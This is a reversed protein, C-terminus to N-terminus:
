DRDLRRLVEDLKADIRDLQSRPRRTVVAVEDPALRLASALAPLHHSPVLHKGTEWHSVQSKSVGIAAGLEAQTLQARRRASAILQGVESAM